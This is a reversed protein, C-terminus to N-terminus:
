RPINRKRVAFNFVQQVVIRIREANMATQARADIIKLYGSDTLM